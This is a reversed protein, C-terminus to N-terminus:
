NKKFKAFARPAAVKCDFMAFGRYDILGKRFSSHESLEVQPDGAMNGFIKTFDGYWLTDDPVEDSVLLERGLLRGPADDKLSEVFIPRKDTDKIKALQGYLFSYNCLFKGKKRFGKAVMTLLSCVDDYDISATTSILNTGPTMTISALGGPENSGTGTIIANEIATAVDEYIFDILWAEFADVSMTQMSKSVPVVKAFEYAALTVYALADTSATIDAGEAHQYADDRTLMTGVTVIGAARSLTIESLLPAVLAMKSVLENATQSPIVGNGNVTTIAREEAETLPQQLLQKFFASRYEPSATTFNEMPNQGKEEIHKAAAGAELAKVSAKRTELAELEAKRELLMQKKERMEEVASVETAQEVEQDLAAIREETKALDFANIEDLFAKRTEENM